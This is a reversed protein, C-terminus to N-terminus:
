RKEHSEVADKLHAADALSARLEDDPVFPIELELALSLRPATGTWALRTIRVPLELAILRDLCRGLEAYEGTCDLVVRECALLNSRGAAAYLAPAELQLREVAVGPARVAGAVRDFVGDRDRRALWLAAAPDAPRRAAGLQACREQVAAADAVTRAIASARQTVGTELRLLTLRAPAWTWLLHGVAAGPAAILLTGVLVCRLTLRRLLKAIV